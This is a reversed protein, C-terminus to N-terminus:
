RLDDSKKKKQNINWTLEGGNHVVILCEWMGWRHVCTYTFGRFFNGIDDIDIYDLEKEVKESPSRKEIFGHNKQFYFQLFLVLWYKHVYGGENSKM